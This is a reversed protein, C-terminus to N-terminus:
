FAALLKLLEEPRLLPWSYPGEEELSSSYFYPLLPPESLSSESM